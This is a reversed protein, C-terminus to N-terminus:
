ESAGEAAPAADAGLTSGRHILEAIEETERDRPVGGCQKHRFVGPPVGLPNVRYMPGREVGDGCVDCKM